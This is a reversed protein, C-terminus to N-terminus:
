LATSTRSRLLAPKLFSDLKTQLSVHSMRRGLQWADNLTVYEVTFLIKENKINRYLNATVPNALTQQLKLNHLTVITRSILIDPPLSLFSPFM